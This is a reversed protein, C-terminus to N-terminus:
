RCDARGRAASHEVSALARLARDKALESMAPDAELLAELESRFSVRRAHLDAEQPSRGHPRPGDAVAARRAAEARLPARWACAAFVAAACAALRLALRPRRGRPARRRM